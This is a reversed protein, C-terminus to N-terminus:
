TGSAVSLHERTVPSLRVMLLMREFIDLWEHREASLEAAPTTANPLACAAGVETVAKRRYTSLMRDGFRGVEFFHETLFVAVPVRMAGLIRVEDRVAPDADRDIVRLQVDDAAALAIQHLMPGQRVCDGCWVGSVLLVNLRCDHGTVRARDGASLPPLALAQTRWRDARVQASQALYTEYDAAQEFARRWFGSRIDFYKPTETM